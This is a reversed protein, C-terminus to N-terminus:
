TKGGARHHADGLACDILGAKRIVEIRNRILRDIRLVDDAQAFASHFDQHHFFMRSVAAEPREDRFGDGAFDDASELNHPGLM